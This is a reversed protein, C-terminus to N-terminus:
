KGGCAINYIDYRLEKTSNLEDAIQSLLSSKVKKYDNQSLPANGIAYRLNKKSFCFMSDNVNECNHSFYTDSCYGCCDIEFCRTQSTCSYINICFNSNFPSDAGFLYQCNMPWFSYACYKSYGVASSRYSNSSSAYNVCEILNTNKGVILYIHFFALPGIKEHANALTIGEADNRELRISQGFVQAENIDLLRDRPLLPYTSFTPLVMEKGTAASTCKETPQTHRRLYGAYADMGGELPKGFLLSTTKTFAEEIKSKDKTDSADIRESELPIEPKAWKSKKVIDLLTPARKARKLQEALESLLNQKASLYKDRPLELNGIACKKNWSNFSFMCNSCNTLGSSYFSDLSNDSMWLEFSRSCHFARNCKISFSTETAGNLGFCNEGDRAMTCCAINKSHGYRASKYIGTSDNINSSKEIKSCNGFMVNGAYHMRESIASAISDLDKVENIGLPEFKKNFDVEDLALWGASKCYSTPASAVEKGSLSSKHYQVPRTLETLYPEFDSLEGIEQGFIIKCTSKWQRNLLDYTESM